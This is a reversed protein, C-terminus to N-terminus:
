FPKHKGVYCDGVTEVKFINRRKAIMDFEHYMTELLCFVDTPTRASSWKTFGALDAFRLIFLSVFHM